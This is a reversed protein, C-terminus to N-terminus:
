ECGFATPQPPESRSRERLVAPRGGRSVGPRRPGRPAIGVAECDAAEERLRDPLDGGRGQPITMGIATLAAWAIADAWQVGDDTAQRPRDPGAAVWIREVAKRTAISVPIGVAITIVKMGIKGAVNAM